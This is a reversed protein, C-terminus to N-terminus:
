ILHKTYHHSVCGIVPFFRGSTVSSGTSGLFYGTSTWSEIIIWSRQLSDLSYIEFEYLFVSLHWCTVPEVQFRKSRSGHPGFTSDGSVISCNLLIGMIRYTAEEPLRGGSPARCNVSLRLVATNLYGREQTKSEITDNLLTSFTLNLTQTSEHVNTLRKTCWVSDTEIYSATSMLKLGSEINAHPWKTLNNKQNRHM